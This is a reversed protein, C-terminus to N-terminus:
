QETAQNEGPWRMWAGDLFRQIAGLPHVNVEAVDIMTGTRMAFRFAIQNQREISVVVGPHEVKEPTRVLKLVGLWHRDGEKNKVKMELPAWHYSLENIGPAIKAHAPVPGYAWRFEPGPEIGNEIASPTRALGSM